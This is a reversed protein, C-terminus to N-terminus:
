VRGVSRNRGRNAVIAMNQWWRAFGSEPLYVKAAQNMRRGCVTCLVLNATLEHPERPSGINCCPCFVFVASM